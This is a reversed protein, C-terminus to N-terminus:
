GAQEKPASGERQEQFMTGMGPHIVHHILETFGSEQANQRRLTESALEGLTGCRLVAELCHKTSAASM